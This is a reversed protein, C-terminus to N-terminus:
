VGVPQTPSLGGKSPAIWSALLDNATAFRDEPSRKLAKILTEAWGAPLDSRVTRPDAPPGELVQGLLLPLTKADYPRVGTAM